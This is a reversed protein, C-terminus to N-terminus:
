LSSVCRNFVKSAKESLYFSNEGSYDIPKLGEYLAIDDSFNSLNDLGIGEVWVGGWSAATYTTSKENFVVDYPTGDTLGMFVIAKYNQGGLVVIPKKGKTEIAYRCPGTVGADKIIVTHKTKTLRQEHEYITKGAHASFSCALVSLVIFRISM